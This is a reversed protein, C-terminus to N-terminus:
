RPAAPDNPLDGRREAQTAQERLEAAGEELPGDIVREEAADAVRAAEDRHDYRSPGDAREAAAATPHDNSTM